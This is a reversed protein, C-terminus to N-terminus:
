WMIGSEYFRGRGRGGGGSDRIRSLEGNGAGMSYDERPKKVRLNGGSQRV